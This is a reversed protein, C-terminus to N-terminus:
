YLRCGSVALIGATYTTM